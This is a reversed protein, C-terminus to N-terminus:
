DDPGVAFPDDAIPAPAPKQAAQYKVKAEKRRKKRMAKKHAALEEPTMRYRERRLENEQPARARRYAQSETPPGQVEAPEVESFEADVVDPAILMKRAESQEIGLERCLELIRRDKQEDTLHHTVEINHQTVASFGSRNLLEVAAKLRDKKDANKDDRIQVLTLISRPGEARMLKQGEELIAAQVRDDHALQYGRVKLSDRGHAYGAAAAAQTNNLGRFVKAYVFARMGPNLALMAPGLGEVSLQVAPVMPRDLNSM